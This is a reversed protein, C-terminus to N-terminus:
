SLHVVLPTGSSILLEVQNENTPTGVIEASLWFPGKALQELIHSQAHNPNLADIVRYKTGGYTIHVMCRLRSQPANQKTQSIV